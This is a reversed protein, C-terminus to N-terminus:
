SSPNWPSDRNSSFSADFLDPRLVAQDYVLQRPQLSDLSSITINNQSAHNEYEYDIKYMEVFMLFVCSFKRDVVRQNM